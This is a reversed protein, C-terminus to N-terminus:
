APSIQRLFPPLSFTSHLRGPTPLAEASSLKKADETQRPIELLVIRRVTFTDRGGSACFVPHFTPFIFFHWLERSIASILIYRRRHPMRPTRYTRSDVHSLKSRSRLLKQLDFDFIIQQAVKWGVSGSLDDISGTCARTYCM